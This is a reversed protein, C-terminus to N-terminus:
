SESSNKMVFGTTRLPNHSTMQRLPVKKVNSNSTKPLLLELTQSVNSEPIVTRETKPEKDEHVTMKIGMEEAKNLFHGVITSMKYKVNTQKYEFETNEVPIYGGYPIVHNPKDAIEAYQKKIIKYQTKPIEKGTVDSERYKDIPALNLKQMNFLTQSSNKPEEIYKDKVKWYEKLNDTFKPLEKGHVGISINFFTNQNYDNTEKKVKEKLDKITPGDNYFILFKEREKLHEERSIHNYNAKEHLNELLEKKKQTNMQSQSSYRPYAIYETSPCKALKFDTPDTLGQKNRVTQNFSNKIDKFSSIKPEKVYDEPDIRSTEVRFVNEYPRGSVPLHKRTGVLQKRSSIVPLSSHKVIPYTAVIKENADNDMIVGRKQIVRAQYNPVRSELGLRFNDLFGSRLANEANRREVDNLKGDKDDDFQKSIFLDRHSVFGDNDIDYSPDPLFEKKRENLLEQRTRIRPRGPWPDKTQKDKLDLTFITTQENKKTELTQMLNGNLNYQPSIHNEM